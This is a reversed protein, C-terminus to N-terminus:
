KIIERKLANIVLGTFTIILNESHKKLADENVLIDNNDSIRFKIFFDNFVKYFISDEKVIFQSYNSLKKKFLSINFLKLSDFYRNITEKFSSNTLSKVSILKGNLKFNEFELENNGLKSLTLIYMLTFAYIEKTPIKRSERGYLVSFEKKNDSNACLFYIELDPIPNLYLLWKLSEFIKNKLNIGNIYKAIKEINSLQINNLSNYYEENLLKKVKGYYAYGENLSKLTVFPFLASM